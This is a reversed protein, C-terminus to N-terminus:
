AKAVIEAMPFEIRAVTGKGLESELSVPWNFRDSLRRVITLGVGHGGRPAGQGRFFPQFISKLDQESIGRGSDVIEVAKGTIHVKVLGRDTYRCANRLLNGILVGIVKAPGVMHLQHEASFEIQVDKQLLLPQATEIEEEIIRNITLEEEALGSATDRALLMFAEILAEMDRSAADIRRVNREAFSDLNGDELLVESALKIVTLPSRLEHSADRTFTREREVLEGIRASYNSLAEALVQTEGEFRQELLDMRPESFQRPDWRRVENALWVIPSIARKSFRYAILSVVYILALVVVLPVLGFLLALKGVNQQDFVLTLRGQPVDSVYVLPRFDSSVRLNHYGPGLQNLEPPLARISREVGPKPQLYGQMNYTNPEPAAPNTELIKGYHQAEDQLARRILLDEVVAATAYIGLLTACAIAAAQLIFVNSIRTQLSRRDMADPAEAPLQVHQPRLFGSDVSTSEPAHNGDAM